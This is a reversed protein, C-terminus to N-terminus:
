SPIQAPGEREKHFRREILIFPKKGEAEGGLPKESTSVRETLKAM